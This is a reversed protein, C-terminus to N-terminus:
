AEGNTEHLRVRCFILFYGIQGHKPSARVVSEHLRVRCFALRWSLSGIESSMNQLFTVQIEVDVLSEGKEKGDV